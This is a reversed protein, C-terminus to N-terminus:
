VTKHDGGGNVGTQGRWKDVQAIPTRVWVPASLLYCFHRSM